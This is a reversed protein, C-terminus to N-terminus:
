EQVYVRRQVQSSSFTYLDGSTSEAGVGRSQAVVVNSAVTETLHPASELEGNAGAVHRLQAASGSKWLATIFVYNVSGDGRGEITVDKINYTSDVTRLNDTPGEWLRNADYLVLEDMSPDGVALWDRAQEGYATVAIPMCESSYLSGDPKRITVQNGEQNSRIWWSEVWSDVQVELVGATCGTGDQACARFSLFLHSELDYPHGDEQTTAAAMDCIQVIDYWKGGEWFEPSWAEVWNWSTLHTGYAHLLDLNNTQGVLNGHMFSHEHHGVAHTQAFSTLVHSGGFKSAAPATFNYALGSTSFMYLDQGALGVAYRNFRNGLSNHGTGTWTKAVSYVTSTQSLQYCGAAAIVTTAITAVIKANVKFTKDIM